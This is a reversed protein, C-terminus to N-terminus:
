RFNPRTPAFNRRTPPFRPRTLSRLPATAFAPLGDDPHVERHLGARRRGAAPSAVVHRVDGLRYGGTVEPEIDSGTGRAVLSAVDRIGVPHGSAVNYARHHGEPEELVARLAAVNARAVDDVHVFDRM